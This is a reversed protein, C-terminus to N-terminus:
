NVITQGDAFYPPPGFTDTLTGDQSWESMNAERGTCYLNQGAIAAQGKVRGASQLNPTGSDEAWQVLVTFAGYCGGTLVLPTTSTCAKRSCETPYIAVEPVAYSSGYQYEQQGFELKGRSLEIAAPDAIPENWTVANPQSSGHQLTWVCYLACPGGGDQGEAYLNGKTDYGAPWTFDSFKYETPTGSIGGAFIEVGGQYLTVALNGTTPDVACGIPFLDETETVKSVTTTGETIESVTAAQFDTVYVNGSADSCEGYPYQFGTVEGVYTGSPYDFVEVAGEDLDSVYLLKEKKKLPLMSFGGGRARHFNPAIGSHITKLFAALVEAESHHGMRTAQAPAGVLGSPGSCGTLMAATAAIAFAYGAASPIKM